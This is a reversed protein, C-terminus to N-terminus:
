TDPVTPDSKPPLGSLPQTVWAILQVTPCVVSVDFTSGNPKVEVQRDFFQIPGFAVADKLEDSASGHATLTLSRVLIASVTIRHLPQGETSLQGSRYGPMYWGRTDLWPWHMWPRTLAVVCVEFKMELSAPKTEVPKPPPAQELVVDPRFIPRDFITTRPELRTLTRLSSVRTSSAVRAVATAAARPAASASAASALPPAVTTTKAASLDLALKARQAEPMVKFSWAPVLKASGLLGGSAPAALTASPTTVSATGGAVANSSFPTWITEDPDYWREPIAIVPRYGFGTGLATKEAQEFMARAEAQNRQIMEIMPAAQGPLPLAFLTQEYNAAISRVTRRYESDRVSPVADALATLTESAIQPSLTAAADALRFGSYPLPVGLPEFALADPDVTAPVGERAGLEPAGHKQFLAVLQERLVQQLQEFEAVIGGTPFVRPDQNRYM